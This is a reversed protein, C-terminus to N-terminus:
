IYEEWWHLASFIDMGEGKRLSAREVQLAVSAFSGGKGPTLHLQPLQAGGQLRKQERPPRCATGSPM